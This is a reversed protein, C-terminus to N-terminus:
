GFLSTISSGTLPQNSYSANKTIKSLERTMYIAIGNEENKATSSISLVMSQNAAFKQPKFNWILFDNDKLTSLNLNNTALVENKNNKIQLVLDGENTRAYTAVLIKIKSVTVPAAFVFAEEWTAGKYIPGAPYFAKANGIPLPNEYVLSPESKPFFAILLATLVILTPVVWKSSKMIRNSVQMRM